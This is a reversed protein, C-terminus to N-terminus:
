PNNEDFQKNLYLMPIIRESEEAVLGYPKLQQNLIELNPSLKLQIHIREKFGSEDIFLLPQSEIENLRNILHTMTGKAISLQNEVNVINQFAENESLLLNTGGKQKIVLCPMAVEKMVGFYGSYQNLAALMQSPLQSAQAKPLCFEFSFFEALGKDNQPLVLQKKLLGPQVQRGVAFFLDALRFNSIGIGYTIGDAKRYRTGSPLGPYYGKLVLSYHRMSDLPFFQSSFLPRTADIDVKSQATLNQKALVKEINSATVQDAGTVAYFKADPSIWVEHPLLQHPFLASLEKDAIVMPLNIDPLKLSKRKALFAQIKAESETSVLLIQLDEKFQAQLAQLEPLKEICSSCWTAWFDILVLKGKFDALNAEKSIGNQHVTFALNPVADGIAIKEQANTYFAKFSIFFILLFTRFNPCLLAM